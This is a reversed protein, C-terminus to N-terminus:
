LSYLIYKKICLAYKILKSIKESIKVKIENLYKKLEFFFFCYCLDNFDGESPM